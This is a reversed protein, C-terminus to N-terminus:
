CRCIKVAHLRNLEGDAASSAVLASSTALKCSACRLACFWILM